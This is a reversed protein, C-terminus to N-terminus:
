WLKILCLRCSLPFVTTSEEILTRTFNRTARILKTIKQQTDAAAQPWPRSQPLEFLSIGIAAKHRYIYLHLSGTLAM